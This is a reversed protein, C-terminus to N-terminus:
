RMGRPLRVHLPTDLRFSLSQTCTDRHGKEVRDIGSQRSRALEDDGEPIVLPSYAPIEATCPERLASCCPTHTGNLRSTTVSTTGQRTCTEYHRLNSRCSIRKLSHQEIKNRKRPAHLTLPVNLIFPRSLRTYRLRRRDYNKPNPISM